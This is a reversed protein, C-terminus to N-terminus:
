NVLIASSLQVTNFKILNELFFKRAESDLLFRKAATCTNAVPLDTQGIDLVSAFYGDAQQDNNNAYFVDKGHDVLCKCTGVPDILGIRM